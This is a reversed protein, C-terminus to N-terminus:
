NGSQQPRKWVAVIRKRVIGVVGVSEIRFHTSKVGVVTNLKQKLTPDQVVENLQSMNDFQKEQRRTVIERAIAQATASNGQMGAILATLVEPPATNLNVVAAATNPNVVAQQPQRTPQTQGASQQQEAGFVTLYSNSGLDLDAVAEPTAGPFLKALAEP